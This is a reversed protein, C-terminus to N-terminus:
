IGNIMAGHLIDLRERRGLIGAKAPGSFPAFTSVAIEVTDHSAGGLACGMWNLLTGEAEERAGAPPDQSKAGVNYRALRRTVDTVATQAEVAADAKGSGPNQAPAEQPVAAAVGAGSLGLLFGRRHINTM